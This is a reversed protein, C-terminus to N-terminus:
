MRFLSLITNLAKESSLLRFSIGHKELLKEILRAKDDVEEIDEGRVLVYTLKGSRVIIIHNDKELFKLVNEPIEDEVEFLRVWYDGIKVITEGKGVEVIIPRVEVIDHTLYRRIAKATASITRRKVLDLLDPLDKSLLYLFLGLLALFLIFRAFSPCIALILIFLISLILLKKPDIRKFLSDGRGERSM